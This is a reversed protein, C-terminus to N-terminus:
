LNNNNLELLLINQSILIVSLNKHHSGQTFLGVIADCLSSERMLDDIIMLKPSRPDNSYDEPRPLGEHFEIINKRTKVLANDSYKSESKEEREGTAIYASIRIKGSPTIFYFERSDSM